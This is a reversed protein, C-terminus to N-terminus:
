ASSARRCTASARRREQRGARPLGGNSDVNPRTTTRGQYSARPTSRTPWAATTALAPSPRSRRGSSTRPRPRPSRAPPRHPTSGGSGPRAEVQLRCCTTRAHGLLRRARGHRAPRQGRRAGCRAGRDRRTVGDADTELVLDLHGGDVLLASAAVGYGPPPRRCASATAWTSAHDPRPLHWPLRRPLPPLSRWARWHSSAHPAGLPVCTRWRPGSVGSASGSTRAM